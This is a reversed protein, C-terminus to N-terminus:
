LIVSKTSDYDKPKPPNNKLEIIEDIYKQMERKTIKRTTDLSSILELQEDDTLQRIMALATTPMVIGTQVLDDLEPIMDALIKYNQLTDVSMGMENALQEQTKPAESNNTVVKSYQNGQFYTSGNQIGYLREM